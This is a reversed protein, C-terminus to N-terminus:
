RAAPEAAGDDSADDTLQMGPIAAYAARALNAGDDPEM